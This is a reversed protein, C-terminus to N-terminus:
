NTKCWLSVIRATLLPVLECLCVRLSSQGREGKAKDQSAKPVNGQMECTQGLWPRKHQHLWRRQSGECKWGEGDGGERCGVPM